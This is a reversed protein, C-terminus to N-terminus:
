VQTHTNSHPQEEETGSAIQNAPAYYQLLFYLAKPVSWLSFDLSHRLYM